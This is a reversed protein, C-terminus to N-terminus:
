HCIRGGGVRVSERGRWSRPAPTQRKSTDNDRNARKKKNVKKGVQHVLQATSKVDFMTGNNQPHGGDSGDFLADLLGGPCFEAHAKWVRNSCTHYVPLRETSGGDARLTFRVVEGSLITLWHELRRWCAWALDKVPSQILQRKTAMM